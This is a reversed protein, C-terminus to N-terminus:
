LIGSIIRENIVREAVSNRNWSTYEFNMGLETENWIKIVLYTWSNSDFVDNFNKNLNSMPTTVVPKRVLKM